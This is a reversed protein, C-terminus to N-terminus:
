NFKFLIGQSVEFVIQENVTSLPEQSLNTVYEMGANTTHGGDADSNYGSFQTEIGSDPSSAYIGYPSPSNYMPSASFGQSLVSSRQGRGHTGKLTPRKLCHPLVWDNLVWRFCTNFLYNFVIWLEM